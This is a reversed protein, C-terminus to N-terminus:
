KGYMVILMHLSFNNRLSLLVLIRDTMNQRTHRPENNDPCALATAMMSLARTYPVCVVDMTFSLTFITSSKADASSIVDNTAYGLHHAETLYQCAQGRTSLSAVVVM